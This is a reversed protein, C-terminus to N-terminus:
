GSMFQIIRCIWIYIVDGVSDTYVDADCTLSVKYQDNLHNLDTSSYRFRWTVGFSNARAIPITWQLAFHGARCYCICDARKNRCLNWVMSTLQDKCGMANLMGQDVNEQNWGNSLGFLKSCADYVLSTLDLFGGSQMWLFVLMMLLVHLPCWVMTAPPHIM